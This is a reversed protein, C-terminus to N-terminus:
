CLLCCSVGCCTADGDTGLEKAMETASVPTQPRRRQSRVRALWACTCATRCTGAGCCAHQGELSVKWMPDALEAALGEGVLETLRMKAETANLLM